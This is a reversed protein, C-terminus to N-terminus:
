KATVTVQTSTGVNQAADYAKAQLTYTKNKASPVNWSCSYPATTDTCRLNNGIYFEVKTVGVNDSAAAQITVTSGRSITGGNVPSTISVSPPTTDGATPGNLTLARRALVADNWRNFGGVLSYTYYVDFQQGSDRPEEGFGIISPAYSEGSETEIIVRSSWTLGNLSEIISLNWNGSTPDVMVLVYKGSYANYSVSMYNTGPNGSELASSVGGMGPETWAGNFYKNWATVDNSAGAALVDSIRARAVALNIETGDHFRDRFYVYLYEGAITFTGGTIEHNGEGFFSNPTIIEGLDTWTNGGDVSKAMALLSWFNVANSDWIEAHYFMFLNGTTADRYVPGGAAYNYAHKPNQIQMSAISVSVAPNDATGTTKAISGSNAAFFTYESGSRTVGMTGDPWYNLGKAVRESATLVDVRSGITMNTISAEPNLALSTADSTPNRIPSIIADLPPRTSSTKGIETLAMAVAKAANVRGSGYTPDWGTPGLDDASNKLINQIQSASLNPNASVVLAAVGAVIPASFSTGSWLGYGGGRSTTLISEGPASLDVFNGTNSWSMISDSGSTASVTLVYPNDSTSDFTGQNGASMTVVGGNRQFYRAATTVSSVNTMMYSLNAVRAGHDAAWVLGNAVASFSAVGNGDSVRIPMIRCNWAVSAVGSLNDAAAASTGAVATGHGSIDATNSNDDWFNWGPVMKWSLDPHAADIGTDLIAITVTPSGVSFDWASPGGIKNLHWQKPFDPDNPVRDPEVLGDAEAFEVEPQSAFARAVADEAGETPLQLIHIDLADIKGNRIAGIEAVLSDIRDLSTQPHFKVLLRGPMHTRATNRMNQQGAFSADRQALVATILVLLLGLRRFTTLRFTGNRM